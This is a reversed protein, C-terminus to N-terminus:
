IFKREWYLLAGYHKDILAPRNDSTMHRSLMIVPLNEDLLPFFTM